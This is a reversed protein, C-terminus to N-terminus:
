DGPLMSCGLRSFVKRYTDHNHVVDGFFYVSPEPQPNQSLEQDLRAISVDWIVDETHELGVQKYHGLIEDWDTSLEPHIQIKDGPKTLCLARGSYLRTSIHQDHTYLTIDHNYIKM